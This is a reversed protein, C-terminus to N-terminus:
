PLSKRRSHAQAGPCAVHHRGRVKISQTVYQKSAEAQARPKPQDTHPDWHLLAGDSNELWILLRGPQERWVRLVVGLADATAQNEPHITGRNVSVQWLSLLPKVDPLACSKAGHARGCVAVRSPLDSWPMDHRQRRLWHM